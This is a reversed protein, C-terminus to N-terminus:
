TLDIFLKCFYCLKRAVGFINELTTIKQRTASDKSLIPKMRFCPEKM